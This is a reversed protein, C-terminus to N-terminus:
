TNSQRSSKRSTRNKMRGSRWDSGHERWWRRKFEKQAPQACADSCYKQTLRRAIFYPAPCEFNTCRRMRNSIDIARVLVQAFPDLEEVSWFKRFDREERRLADRYVEYGIHFADMPGEGSQEAFRRTDQELLRAKRAAASMGPSRLYYALEGTLFLRRALATPMLWAARLKPPIDEHMIWSDPEDPYEWVMGPALAWPSLDEVSSTGSRGDRGTPREDVPNGYKPFLDPFLRFARDWANAIGAPIAVHLVGGADEEANPGDPSQNYDPQNAMECLFRDAREPTVHAATAATLPITIKDGM